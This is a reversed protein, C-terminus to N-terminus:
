YMPVGELRRLHSRPDDYESVYTFTMRIKNM